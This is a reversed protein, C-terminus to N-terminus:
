SRLHDLARGWGDDLWYNHHGHIADVPGTECNADHVVPDILRWDNGSRRCRDAGQPWTDDVRDAGTPLPLRRSGVDDHKWSLVPGALPDTVRYLNVWRGGLSDFLWSVGTLNVYAPFARPYIVRLQSGCSLFAIRDREAQTLQMMAAFSILTGQSHACVVVEPAGPTVPEPPIGGHGKLHFRIRNRLEIVTWRSYPRPVFPHVAHPWFSFIDWVINIGRRLAADKFAGRSITVVLGAGTIFVWAGINILFISGAGSRPQSLWDLWGEAHPCRVPGLPDQKCSQSEYGQVLSIGLGVVAFTIAIGPVHNKLQGVYTARVVRGLWGDPLETTEEEPKAYM